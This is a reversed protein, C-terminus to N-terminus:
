LDARRGTLVGGYCSWSRASEMPQLTPDKGKVHRPRGTPVVLGLIMSRMGSTSLMSLLSLALEDKRAWPPLNCYKFEASDDTGIKKRHLKSIGGPM